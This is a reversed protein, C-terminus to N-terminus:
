QAGGPNEGTRLSGLAFADESSWRVDRVEEFQCRATMQVPEGAVNFRTLDTSLNVIKVTLSVVKSWAILARPPQGGVISASEKPAYCLSQLFRRANQLDGHTEIDRSLFFLELPVSLNATGLYQLPQYSAGIPAPRAYNVAIEERFRSPNFQAQMFDGTRVNTVRM